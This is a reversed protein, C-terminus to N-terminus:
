QRPYTWTPPISGDWNLGAGLNAAIEFPHLTHARVNGLFVALPVEGVCVPLYLPGLMRAQEVHSM